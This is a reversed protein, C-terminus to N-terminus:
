EIAKGHSIATIYNMNNAPMNPTLVYTV